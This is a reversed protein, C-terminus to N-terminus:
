PLQGKLAAREDVIKEIWRFKWLLSRVDHPHRVGVGCCTLSLFGASVWPTPDQREAATGVLLVWILVGFAQDWGGLVSRQISTRLRGLLPKNVPKNFPVSYVVARFYILAALRCCEYVEKDAPYGDLINMSPLMRLRREILICKEAITNSDIKPQLTQSEELMVTIERMDRLITPIHRGAESLSCAISKEDYAFLPSYSVFPARLVNM